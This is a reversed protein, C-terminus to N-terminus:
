DHTNCRQAQLLPPGFQPLNPSAARAIASDNALLWNSQPLMPDTKMEWPLRACLPSHVTQHQSSPRHPLIAFHGKLAVYRCRLRHLRHIQGAHFALRVPNSHAITQVNTSQSGQGLRLAPPFLHASMVLQLLKKLRPFGAEM